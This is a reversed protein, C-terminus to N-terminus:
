RLNCILRAISEWNQKIDGCSRVYEAPKDWHRHYEVRSDGTASVNLIIPINGYGEFLAELGNGSAKHLSHFKIGKKDTANVLYALATWDEETIGFSLWHKHDYKKTAVTKNKTM